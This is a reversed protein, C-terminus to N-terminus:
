RESDGFSLLKSMSLFDISHSDRIDLLQHYLVRKTKTYKYYFIGKKINTIVPQSLKRKLDNMTGEMQFVKGRIINWYITRGDKVNFRTIQPWMQLDM